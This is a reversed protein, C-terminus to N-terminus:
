YINFHWCISTQSPPGKLNYINPVRPVHGPIPSPEMDLVDTYSIPGFSKDANDGGMGTVKLYFDCKFNEHELSKSM